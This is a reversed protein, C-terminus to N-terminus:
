AAPAARRRGKPLTVVEASPQSAARAEGARMHQAITGAATAVVQAVPDLQLHAYRETVATSAHGLARGVLFLSAGGKVAMSALSHRLSHITVGELKARRCIGSFFKQLGIAPGDGRSAPFVWPKDEVRNQATLIVRAEASLPVLRARTKTNALRLVGDELDVESWRLRAIESKRCGTLALLRIIAVFRPNAGSAEAAALAAGLKEFEEANLFRERRGSSNVEVLRAPNSELLGRRVAFSLIAALYAVTRGAIGAGGTVRARGRPGTKEDVATDGAEIADQFREIDHKKLSALKRKGLKPLIHRKLASEYTVITSARLKPGGTKKQKRVQPYGAKRWDEVLQEVTLDRKGADREDAPDEGKAIRGLEVTARTRAQECTVPGHPGLVLRRTRGGRKWQVLYVRRGSPYIRCGFGTLKSDWLFVDRAGPKVAEVARKTLEAM